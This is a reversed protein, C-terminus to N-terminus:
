ESLSELLSSLQEYTFPKVMRADFGFKEPNTMVPDDSYGSCAIIKVFPNVTGNRIESAVIKGGKGGPITLDLFVIDFPLHRHYAEAYMQLAEDGHSATSVEFGMDTLIDSIIERLFDEDDMILIRKLQSGKNKENEVIISQNDQSLPQAPLYVFFTTGAGEDSVVDIWGGHKQVISHVTSLGLGHGTSKTTFFPDFIRPLVIEDIGKGTDTFKLCIMEKGHNNDSSHPVNHSQVNHVKVYFHGGAPMAQIANISINDIVQGLQNEDFDCHWLDQEVELSYSVSSGSFVFTLTKELLPVVSGTTRVPDGGKAFTLLQQTLDKARSFVSVASSIAKDVKQMEQKKLMLRAVELYGFMGALLNNFDHAIGGALVALSDLKSNKLAIEQLKSEQTIDRFTVIVGIVNSQADRIPAGSDAIMIEKGSRHVLTTNEELGVIGGTTIITHFFDDQITDHQINNIRFVESLHCGVAENNSWGTLDEAVRNLFTITGDVDTAIVGDGISRLTVALREREEIIQRQIQLQETIDQVQGIVHKVKGDHARVASVCLYAWIIDGNKHYYRKQIKYVDSLGLSLKELFDRDLAIDDEHTIDDISMTELEHSNYGLIQCLASNVRLINGEIDALAMGLPAYKFASFFREESEKLIEQAKKKEVNLLCAAIQDALQNCFAIEDATWVHEIGVHEFCLAGLNVGGTRIVADLMATINNPKIYGEVYGKTRPDELPYSADVFKGYKLYQFEDYYEEERLIAGRTVTESSTFFQYICELETIHENFLWVGIREIGFTVGVSKTIMCYLEEVDGEALAASSAVSALIENQQQVRELLQLQEQETQKRDSIDQSVGIIGIIAGDKNFIPTDTVYTILETGNKHRTRFEGSWLKGEKLDNMIVAAKENQGFGPTIDVINKGIIEIPEWGYLKETYNNAYIIVGEVNTAIIAQGVSNLMEAQLLINEEAKVSETIDQAAGVIKVVNGENDLLPKAYDKIWKLDGSKAYIRLVTEDEIGKVLHERRIRSKVVDDPYIVTNWGGLSEIEDFSYGFIKEMNGVFWDIMFRGQNDKIMSYAYDSILESIIKYREQSHKLIDQEQYREIVISTLQSIKDIIKKEEGSPSEENDGYLAFTGLLRHSSGIIPTSWISHISYEKALPIYNQTLTDTFCNTIIVTEMRHAATGCAAYGEGVPLKDIIDTFSKPLGFAASSRLVNHQADYLLISTRQDPIINYVLECIRQLIEQLAIGSLMMEMVNNMSSSLEENIKRTTIDRAILLVENDSYPVFNGNYWVTSGRVRLKYDASKKQKDLLCQEIKEIFFLATKEDFIDKVNRGILEGIPLYLLEENKPTIEKCNGHNDLIMFIDPLADFLSQIKQHSTTIQEETNKKDTIDQVTGIFTKTNNEDTQVLITSAAHRVSGDRCVLRFEISGYNEGTIAEQMAGRVKEKDDDHVFTLLTDPTNDFEGASMGVMEIFEPSVDVYERNVDWTWTSIKAIRETSELLEKSNQVAIQQKKQTARSRYHAILATCAIIVPHLEATLTENYGDPRNAIGCLGIVEDGVIFPIGMFSSMHPHGQPLGGARPDNYPDNAILVKKSMIAKGFLTDMNHFEMGQESYEDYLARTKEDWAINTIAYVKLYPKAEHSSLIEGIFGYDSATVQLILALMREFQERMQELTSCHLFRSQIDSIQQLMEYATMSLFESNSPPLESYKASHTGNAM